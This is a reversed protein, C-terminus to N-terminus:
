ALFVQEVGGSTGLLLAPAPVKVDSVHAHPRAITFENVGRRSNTLSEWEDPSFRLVVIPHREVYEKLTDIWGM